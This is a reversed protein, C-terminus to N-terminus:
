RKVRHVRLLDYKFAFGKDPNDGEPDSHSDFLCFQMFARGARLTGKERAVTYRHVQWKGNCNITVEAPDVVNTDYWARAIKSTGEMQSLKALSKGKIGGGQKLSVWLHTGENGGWCRYVALVSAKGGSARAHGVFAVQPPHYKAQAAPAGSAPAQGTVLVMPAALLALTTLVRIFRM